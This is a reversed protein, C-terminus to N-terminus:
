EGLKDEFNGAIGSVLVDAMWPTRQDSVDDLMHAVKVYSERQVLTPSDRVMRDLFHRAANKFKLVVDHDPVHEPAAPYHVPHELPNQHLDDISPHPTPLRIRTLGHLTIVSSQSYSSSPSRTLRVIRATTACHALAPTPSASLPVAAVTPPADAADILAFLADALQSNVPFAVRSSPFLILPHPLVLLPLSTTTM